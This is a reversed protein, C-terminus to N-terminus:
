FFFFFFKFTWFGVSLPSSFWIRRLSLIWATWLWQRAERRRRTVKTGTTGQHNRRMTWDPYTKGKGLELWREEEILRRGLGWARLRWRQGIEANTNRNRYPNRRKHKYKLTSKLSHKHKPIPKANKKTNRCPNWAPNKSTTRLRNTEIQTAWIEVRKKKQKELRPKAWIKARKKKKTKRIM